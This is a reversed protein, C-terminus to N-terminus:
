IIKITILKFLIRIEKLNLSIFGGVKPKDSRENTTIEINIIKRNKIFSLLFDALFFSGIKKFNKKKLIRTKYVKFGSVPDKLDFFLYSLFSIIDEMFRNKKKRNCVIIDFLQKTNIVRKLDSSKHQGDGDFTILFDCYNKFRKIGNLLNKEYGLNKKNKIFNIKNKTLWDLTKDTSCDDLICVPALRSIKKVFKKLNNLENYTPILILFKSKKLKYM